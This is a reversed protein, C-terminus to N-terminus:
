KRSNLIADHLKGVEDRHEFLACAYTNRRMLHPQNRIARLFASEFALRLGGERINECSYPAFPCPEVEGHANIHLFAKGSASCMNHKGYEDHPFQIIVLAKKRRLELVKTRLKEREQNNLIWNGVPKEGSPIYETFFGVKCGLNLMEETFRDSSLAELNATNATAAFGYLLDEAKLYKMSQLAKRYAGKGRRADTEEEFGEVSVLIIINRSQAIRRAFAPTLFVGNTVVVFLLKRHKEMTLLLDERLFPEGGTVVVSAVGFSEAEELLGNLEASSLEDQIPSKLAYCGQCNYNCRLTPSIGLVLPINGNLRRAKVGRILLARLFIGFIKVLFLLRRPKKVSWAFIVLMILSGIRPERKTSFIHFQM